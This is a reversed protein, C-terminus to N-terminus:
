RASMEAVGTEDAKKIHEGNCEPMYVGFEGSDRCEPCFIITKTGELRTKLKSRGSSCLTCVGEYVMFNVTGPRCDPNSCEYEAKCHRCPHKHM